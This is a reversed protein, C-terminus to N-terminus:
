QMTRSTRRQKRLWEKAQNFDGFVRITVADGAHREHMALAAGMAHEKTVLAVPGRRGHTAVLHAVYEAIAQSDHPATPAFTLRLDYLLGYTWADQRVQRDLVRFVDAATLTRSARVYILRQWDDRVYDNPLDSSLPETGM